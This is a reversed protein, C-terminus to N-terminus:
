EKRRRGLSHGFPWNALSLYPWLPPLSLLSSSHSLSLPFLTSPLSPSPHFIFPSLSLCPLLVPLIIPPPFSFLGHKNFLSTVILFYFHSSFFPPCPFYQFINWKGRKLTIAGFFVLFILGSVPFLVLLLVIRLKSQNYNTKTGARSSSKTEEVIYFAPMNSPCLKISYRPVVIFSIYLSRFQHVPLCLPGVQDQDLETM